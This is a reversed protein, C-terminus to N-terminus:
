KSVVASRAPPPFTGVADANKLRHELNSVIDLALHLKGNKRASEAYALLAPIANEDHTLDLVFYDCGAHKKGRRHKGDRRIVRFKSYLGETNPELMEFADM